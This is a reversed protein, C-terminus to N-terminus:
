SPESASHSAALGFFELVKYSAFGAPAPSGTDAPSGTWAHRGGEVRYLEVPVPCEPHHSRVVGPAAEEERPEVSCGNIRAREAVVEAPSRYHAGHREGGGYVITEDATGHIDLLGVPREACDTFVGDYYAGSVVAVRRFVEPARCALMATFGGGNSFGAAFVRDRDVPYTAALRSLLQRVYAVDADTAGAPSYPAGQWSPRGQSSPLGTGYVVIAETGDFGTYRRAKEADEGLGHFVFVVPFGDAPAPTDPVHVLASRDWGAATLEVRETAGPALGALPAATERIFADPDSHEYDRAGEPPQAQQTQQPQQAEDRGSESPAHLAGTLLAGTAAGALAVRVALTRDIGRIVRM